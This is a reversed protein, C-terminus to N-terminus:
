LGECYDPKPERAARCEKLLQSHVSDPLAKRSPPLAPFQEVKAHEKWAARLRTVLADRVPEFPADPKYTYLAVVVKDRLSELEAQPQSPWIRKDLHVKIGSAACADVMVTRLHPGSESSDFVELGHEAAVDKVIRSLLPWDEETADVTVALRRNTFAIYRPYNGRGGWCADAYGPPVRDAPHGCAGLSAAAMLGALFIRV